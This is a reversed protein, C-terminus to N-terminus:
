DSYKSSSALQSTNEASAVCPQLSLAPSNYRFNHM